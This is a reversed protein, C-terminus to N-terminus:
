LLEELYTNSDSVNFVKVLSIHDTFPPTPIQIQFERDGQRLRKANYRVILVSILSTGYEMTAQM